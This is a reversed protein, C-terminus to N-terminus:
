LLFSLHLTPPPPSPRLSPLPHTPLLLHGEGGRRHGKNLDKHSNDNMGMYKEVIALATTISHLDSENM